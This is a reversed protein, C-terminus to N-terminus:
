RLRVVAGFPLAMNSTMRWPFNASIGPAEWRREHRLSCFLVPSGRRRAGPMEFSLGSDMSFGITLADVNGASKLCCSDSSKSGNSPGDKNELKLREMVVFSLIRCQRSFRSTGASFMALGLLSVPQSDKHPLLELATLCVYIVLTGNWAEARM